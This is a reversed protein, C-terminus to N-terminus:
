KSLIDTYSQGLTSQFRNRPAQQACSIANDCNYINGTRTAIVLLVEYIRKSKVTKQNVYCHWAIYTGKLAVQNEEILSGTFQVCHSIQETLIVWVYINDQRYLVRCPQLPM